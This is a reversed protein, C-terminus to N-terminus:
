LSRILDWQDLALDFLEREDLYHGFTARLEDRALLLDDTTLQLSEERLRRAIAALLDRMTVAYVVETPDLLKRSLTTVIEDPAM